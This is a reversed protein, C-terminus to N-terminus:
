IIVVPASKSKSAHDLSLEPLLGAEEPEGHASPLSPSISSEQLLRTWFSLTTPWLHGFAWERGAAIVQKNATLASAASAPMDPQSARADNM